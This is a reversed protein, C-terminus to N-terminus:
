VRHTTQNFWTTPSPRLLEKLGEMQEPTLLGDFIEYYNDLTVERGNAVDGLEKHNTLFLPPPFEPLYADPFDHDVDIREHEPHASIWSRPFVMHANSQLPHALPKYPFLDRERIETPSLQDLDAFSSFGAPLRAIPGKMIPKGGSMFAGSAVDGGFDFREDMHSRVDNMLLPKQKRHFNLWQDWRMPLIPSSFSSAGRGYYAYLDFPTRMGKRISPYIKLERVFESSGSPPGPAIADGTVPYDSTTQANATAVNVTMSSRAEPVRSLGSGMYKDYVADIGMAMGVVGFTIALIQPLNKM